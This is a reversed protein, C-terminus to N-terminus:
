ENCLLMVAEETYQGHGGRTLMAEDFGERDVVKWGSLLVPLRRRGYIRHANWVVTDPGLPVELFLHGGKKIHRKYLQIAKLDGDPDIPDGYRGLGSHEISSISIGCDFQLDTGALEDVTYTRLGPIEHTIKRYEVTSVIGGLQAALAEYFPVESGIILVTKEAIPHRKLLRNLLVDSKYRQAVEQDILQRALASLRDYESRTWALQGGRSEDLFLVTIPVTGGMTFRSIFQDPVTFIPGM